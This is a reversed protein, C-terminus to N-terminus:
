PQATSTIATTTATSNEKPTNPPALPPTEAQTATDPNWHVDGIRYEDPYRLAVMPSNPCVNVIVDTAQVELLTAAGEIGAAYREWVMEDPWDAEKLKAQGDVPSDVKPDLNEPVSQISYLMGFPWCPTVWFTAATFAITVDADDAGDPEPAM